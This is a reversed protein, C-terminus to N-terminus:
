AQRTDFFLMHLTVRGVRYLMHALADGLYPGVEPTVSM